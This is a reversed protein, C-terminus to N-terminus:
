NILEKIKSLNGNSLQEKSNEHCSNNRSAQRRRFVDDLSSSNQLHVYFLVNLSHCIKEWSLTLLNFRRFGPKKGPVLPQVTRSASSPSSILASFGAM